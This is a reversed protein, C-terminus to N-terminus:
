AHKKLTQLVHQLFLAVKRDPAMRLMPMKKLSVLFAALSSNLGMKDRRSKSITNWSHVGQPTEESLRATAQRSIISLKRGSSKLSTLGKESLGLM